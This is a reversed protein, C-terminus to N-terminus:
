PAPSERGEGTRGRGQARGRRRGASVGCPRAPGAGPSCGRVSEQDSHARGSAEGRIGLRGTASGVSGRTSAQGAERGTGLVPEAARDNGRRRVGQASGLGGFEEAELELEPNPLVGAQRANGEAAWVGHSSAALEPSHMLALELARRLTLVGDPEHQSQAHTAQTEPAVEGRNAPIDRGLPRM